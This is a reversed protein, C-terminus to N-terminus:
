CDTGGTSLSLRRDGQAGAASWRSRVSWCRAPLGILLMLRLSVFLILLVRFDGLLGLTRSSHSHATM